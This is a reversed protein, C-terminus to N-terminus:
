FARLRQLAWYTLAGAAAAIAFAYWTGGPIDQFPLDKTNMGFFGTVLTPPLIAATLLSLTLLRRNTLKPWAAPWRKRCFGRAITSRHSPIISPM